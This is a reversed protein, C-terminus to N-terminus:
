LRNMFSYTHCNVFFCFQMGNRNLPKGCTCKFRDPHGPLLNPLWVFIDRMYLQTPDLSRQLSFVPHPPRDYFDGRRYCVTSGYKKIEASLRKRVSLFYKQLVSDTRAESARTEAEAVTENAEISDM